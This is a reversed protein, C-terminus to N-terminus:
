WDIRVVITDSYAGPQATPASPIRGYMSVSANWSGLNLLGGSITLMPFGGAGEGLVTTYNSSSYINYELRHGSTSRMQRNGITGHAGAGIRAQVVPLADIIGTCSVTVDSQATTATNLLPNVAGFNMTTASVNCSCGLLFHCLLAEAPRPATVVCLGIIFLLIRVYSMRQFM